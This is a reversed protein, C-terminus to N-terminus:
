LKSRSLKGGAVHLVGKEDGAAVGAGVHEESGVGGRHLHSDHEVLFRGYPYDAWSLDVAVFGDAGSAVADEVLEFPEVDVLLDRKGVELGGDVGEGFLHEAGVDFEPEAWAKEGESFGDASTSTM